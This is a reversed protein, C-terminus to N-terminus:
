SQETWPFNEGWDIHPIQKVFREKHEAFKFCFEGFGHDYDTKGLFHIAWDGIHCHPPVSDYGKLEYQKGRVERRVLHETALALPCAPYISGYWCEGHLSGFKTWCWRVAIDFEPFDGEVVVVHPFQAHVRDPIDSDRFGDIALYDNIDRLLM